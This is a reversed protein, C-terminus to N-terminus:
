LFPPAAVWRHGAVKRKYDFNIKRPKSTKAQPFRSRFIAPAHRYISVLRDIAWKVIISNLCLDAWCEYEARFERDCPLAGAILARTSGIPVGVTDISLIDLAASIKIIDALLSGFM